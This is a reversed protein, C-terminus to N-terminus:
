DFLKSQVDSVVDGVKNKVDFVVDGVIIINGMFKDGLLSFFGQVDGVGGVVKSKVDVVVSKVDNIVGFVDSVVFNYDIVSFVDSVKDKFIVNSFSVKVKVLNEKVNM